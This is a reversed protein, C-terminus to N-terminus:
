ADVPSLATSTNLGDQKGADSSSNATTSAGLPPGHDKVVATGSVVDDAVTPARLTCATHPVEGVGEPADHPSSAALRSKSPSSAIPKNWLQTSISWSPRGAAYASLM